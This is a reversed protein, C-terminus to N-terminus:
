KNELRYCITVKASVELTGTSIGTGSTKSDAAAMERVANDYVVASSASGTTITIPKGVKMGCAAAYAAAQADADATALQALEAQNANPDQFGLSIGNMSTAGASVATDVAQGALGIDRVKVNLMNSVTFGIHKRGNDTYDFQEYINFSSTQIDKEDIGLAILANKVQEMVKANEATAEAVTPKTCEVGVNLTAMDPALSLKGEGTVTVTPVIATAGQQVIPAEGTGAGCAVFAVAVVLAMLAVILAIISKKM